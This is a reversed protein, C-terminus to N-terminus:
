RDGRKRFLGRLNKMFGKQGSIKREESKAKEARKEEDFSPKSKPIHKIQDEKTPEKKEEAEKKAEEHSDKKLAKKVAEQTGEMSGKIDSGTESLVYYKYYM